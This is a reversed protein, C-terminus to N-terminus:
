CQPQYMLDINGFNTQEFNVYQSMKFMIKLNINNQTM